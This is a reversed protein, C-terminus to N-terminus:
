FGSNGLVPKGGGGRKDGRKCYGGPAQRDRGETTSEAGPEAGRRRHSGLRHLAAPPPAVPFLAAPPLALSSEGVVVARWNYQQRSGSDAVQMQVATATDVAEDKYCAERMSSVSRLLTPLAPPPPTTACTHPDRPTAGSRQKIQM